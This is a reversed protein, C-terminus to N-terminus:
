LGNRHGTSEIANTHKIPLPLDGEICSDCFITRQFHDNRSRLSHLEHVLNEASVREERESVFMELCVHILGEWAEGEYYVMANGLISRLDDIIKHYPLRGFPEVNILPCMAAM